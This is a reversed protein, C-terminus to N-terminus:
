GAFCSVLYDSLSDWIATLHQPSPSFNASHVYRNLTDTSIIHEANQLKKLAGNYKDSIIQREQMVDAVKRIKNSLKDNPHIGIDPNKQIYYDTALEILVRFLVSVANPQDHMSLLFQLEEWIAQHRQLQSNWAIPYVVNPILTSRERPPLPAKPEGRRPKQLAKEDLASSREDKPIVLSHEATPLTKDHELKDLYGTKGAIDWVDGLVVRRNAFDDAVRSLATLVVDEQRIFEFRGKKFSFGLRNRFTESSLFRNLTSRPIRKSSVLLNAEELRKEIEAAVNYPVGKGTRGIFNEKMRDDWTSQGVGGQTGTHRRFLIEDIRDRDAEIQCTLISPFEGQWGLKLQSFFRQLDANPSRSPNIILKLCTTRRNGDYITFHGNEPSVLPPDFMGGNLCIDKALKRMHADNNSFLWSIAATENELEGHRDNARNVLLKEIPLDQFPMNQGANPSGPKLSPRAWSARM